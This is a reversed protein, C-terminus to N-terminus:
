FRPLLVRVDCVQAICTNMCAISGSSGACIHRRRSGV